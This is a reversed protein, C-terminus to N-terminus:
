DDNVRQKKEKKANKEAKKKEKEKNKIIGEITKGFELFVKDYEKIIDTSKAGKIKKPDDGYKVAMEVLREKLKLAREELEVTDKVNEIYFPELNAIFNEDKPNAKESFELLSKLKTFKTKLTGINQIVDDLEFTLSGTLCARMEPYFELSEYHQNAIKDLM